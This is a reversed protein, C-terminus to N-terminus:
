TFVLSALSLAASFPFVRKEKLNEKRFFVSPRDTFLNTLNSM